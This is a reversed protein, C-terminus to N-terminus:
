TVLLRPASGAPQLLAALPKAQAVNLVPLAQWSMSVNAGLVISLPM